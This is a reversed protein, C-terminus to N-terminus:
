MGHRVSVRSVIQNCSKEAISARTSPLSVENITDEREDLAGRLAGLPCMKSPVESGGAPDYVFSLIFGEEKMVGLEVLPELEPPVSIPLKIEEGNRKAFHAFLTTQRPNM